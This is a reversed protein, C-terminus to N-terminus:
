TVAKREVKWRNPRQAKPHTEVYRDRAAGVAECSWCNYPGVATYVFENDRHTSEELPEGCGDCRTARYEALALM